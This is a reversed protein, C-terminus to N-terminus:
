SQWWGASSVTDVRRPWEQGAGYPTREGWPGAIREPRESSNM